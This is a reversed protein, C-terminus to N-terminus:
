VRLAYAYLYVFTFVSCTYFLYQERSGVQYSHPAYKYREVVWAQWAQTSSAYVYAVVCVLDAPQAYNMLGLTILQHQKESM